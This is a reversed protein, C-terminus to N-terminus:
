GGLLGCVIASYILAIVIGNHGLGVHDHVELSGAALHAVFDGGEGVAVVGEVQVVRIAEGAEEPVAGGVLRAAEASDNKVEVLTDKAPMGVAEVFNALM